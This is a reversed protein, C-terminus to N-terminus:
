GTAYQDTRRLIAIWRKPYGAFCSLVLFCCFSCYVSRVAQDQRLSISLALARDSLHDSRGPKSQIRFSALSNMTATRLITPLLEDRKVRKEYTRVFGNGSKSPYPDRLTTGRITTKAGAPSGTHRPLNSFALHWDRLYVSHRAWTSLDSYWRFFDRFPAMAELYGVKVFDYYGVDKSGTETALAATDLRCPIRQWWPAPIRVGDALPHQVGM